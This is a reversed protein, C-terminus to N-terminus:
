IKLKPPKKRKCKGVHKVFFNLRINEGCFPCVGCCPESKETKNKDVGKNKQPQYQCPCIEINTINDPNPM